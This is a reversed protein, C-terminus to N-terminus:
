PRVRWTSSSLALSVTVLHSLSPGPSASSLPHALSSSILTPPDRGRRSARARKVPASVSRQSANCPGGLARGHRGQGAEQVRCAPRFSALLHFSLCARRFPPRSRSRDFARGGTPTRSFGQVLRSCRRMADQGACRCQQRGTSGTLRSCPRDADDTAAPLPLSRRCALLDDGDGGNRVPRLSPWLRGRLLRRPV